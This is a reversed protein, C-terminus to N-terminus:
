EDEWEPEEVWEWQSLVGEGCAMQDIANQIQEEVDERSCGEVEIGLRELTEEYDYNAEITIHIKM